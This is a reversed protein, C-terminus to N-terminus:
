RGDLNVLRYKRSGMGLKEAYEIQINGSRGSEKLFADQCNHAKNVLDLSAQEIAVLDTSSLIGIDGTFPKRARGSCDCDPSLNALVNIYVFHNSDALVKAYEVLRKNFLESSIRDKSAEFAEVPCDKLCQGCGICKRTDIKLPNISIAGAPCQKVCAGCRICKSTDYDPVYDAHMARKGMRSALGMAVNKIAGGFGALGHGKFHSFIIFTSYRDMHSGALVRTYCATSCAYAKEGESDLIDIPAFGFGHAKALKLHSETKQRPGSYLVNTEVYTAKLLEVLPKSLEPKLYNKNGEEGFHVKVAVKGKVQDKIMRYVKLVGQGSLDKTFYVPSTKQALAIQGTLLAITAIFILNKKMFIANNM